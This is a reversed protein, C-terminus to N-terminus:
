HWGEWVVLCAIEVVEKGVTVETLQEQELHPLSTINKLVAKLDCSM